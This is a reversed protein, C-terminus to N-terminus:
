GLSIEFNEESVPHALPLGKLHPIDSITARVTNSLPAAITPVVLMSIPLLDGQPTEINIIM